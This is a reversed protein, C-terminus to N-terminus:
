FVGGHSIAALIRRVEGAGPETDLMSLPTAGGLARNASRLWQTAPERGGLAAEAQRAVDAVRVVRESTAADLSRNDRIRRHATSDPTHLLAFVASKPVALYAVMEDLVRARMGRRIAGIKEVASTGRSVFSAFTIAPAAAVARVARARSVPLAGRTAKGRRAM